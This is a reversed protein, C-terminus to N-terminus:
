GLQSRKWESFNLIDFSETKLNFGCNHCLQPNKDNKTNNWAHGCKYCEHKFKEEKKEM